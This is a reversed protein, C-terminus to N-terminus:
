EYYCIHYNKVLAYEGQPVTKCKKSVLSNDCGIAKAAAVATPFVEDLELIYIKKKPKRISVNDKIAINKHKNSDYYEWKCGCCTKSQNILNKYLANYSIQYKSCADKICDFTEGTTLNIIKRAAPNNGGQTTLHPKNKLAKSLNAKHEQSFHKGLWTGPKGYMPNKEGRVRLSRKECEEKTVKFSHGGSQTNYGKEPNDFSDYLKIYYKELQDLEERTSISDQLVEWEFSEWGYKRIARYFYTDLRQSDKKHAKKREELTKSTQGIYVKGNIINTAKYILM